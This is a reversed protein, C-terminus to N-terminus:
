CKLNMVLLWFSYFHCCMGRCSGWMNVMMRAAEFQETKLAEKLNRVMMEVFQSFFLM